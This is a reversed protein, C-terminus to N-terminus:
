QMVFFTNFTEICYDGILNITMMQLVKLIDSNGKM